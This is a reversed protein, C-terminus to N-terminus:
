HQAAIALIACKFPSIPLANRSHIANIEDIKNKTYEIFSGSRRLGGGYEDWHCTHADAVMYVGHPHIHEYLLEFSSTM